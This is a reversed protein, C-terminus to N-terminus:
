CNWGVWSPPFRPASKTHQKKPCAVRLTGVLGTEGIGRHVECGFQELKEAVLDSTRQEEFGLEPHAHIDHRWATMDGHFAAIREVVAM